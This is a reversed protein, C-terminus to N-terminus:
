PAARWLRKWLSAREYIGDSEGPSLIALRGDTGVSWTETSVVEQHFAAPLNRPPITEIKTTILLVNGKMEAWYSTSTVMGSLPDSSAKLAHGKGDLLMTIWTVGTGDWYRMTFSGSSVEVTMQDRGPGSKKLWWGDLTPKTRLHVVAVMAVAVLVFLSLLRTKLNENM